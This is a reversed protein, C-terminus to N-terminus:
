ISKNQEQPLIVYDFSLTTSHIRLAVSSTADAYMVYRENVEHPSGQFVKYNVENGFYGEKPFVNSM